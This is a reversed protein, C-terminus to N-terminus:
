AVVTRDLEGFEIFFAGVFEHETATAIPAAAAAATPAPAASGSAM